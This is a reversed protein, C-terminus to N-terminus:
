SPLLILTVITRSSMFEGLAAQLLGTLRQTGEVVQEPVVPLHWEHILGQLQHLPADSSTMGDSPTLWVSELSSAEGGAGVHDEARWIFSVDHLDRSTSGPASASAASATGSAPGGMYAMSGIATAGGKMAATWGDLMTSVGATPPAVSELGSNLDELMGEFAVHRQGGGNAQETGMGVHPQHRMPDWLAEQLTPADPPTMVSSSDKVQQLHQGLLDQQPDAQRRM